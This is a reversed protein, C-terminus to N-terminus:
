GPPLFALCNTPNTCATVPPGAGWWRRSCVCPPMSNSRLCSEAFPVLGTWVFACLTALKQGLLSRSNPRVSESSRQVARQCYFAQLSGNLYAKFLLASLPPVGMKRRRMSIEPECVWRSNLNGSVIAQYQSFLGKLRDTDILDEILPQDDIGAKPIRNNCADEVPWCFDLMECAEAHLQRLFGGEAQAFRYMCARCTALIANPCKASFPTFSHMMDRSM